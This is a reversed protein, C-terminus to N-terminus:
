CSGFRNREQIWDGSEKKRQLLIFTFTNILYFLKQVYRLLNTDTNHCHCMREPPNQCTEIIRSRLKRMQLILCQVLIVDLNGKTSLSVKTLWPYYIYTWSPSFKRVTMFTGNIEKYFSCPAWPWIAKTRLRM